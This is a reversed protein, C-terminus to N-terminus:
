RRAVFWRPSCCFWVSALRASRYIESHLASRALFLTLLLLDSRILWLVCRLNGKGSGETDKAAMQALVERSHAGAPLFDQLHDLETARDRIYQTTPFSM